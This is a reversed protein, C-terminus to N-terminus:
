SSACPIVAEVVTGGDVPSQVALSGGLTAVRDTLGRLGSGTGVQAGGVGDDTVRATVHGDQQDIRVRASSARSHKAVNTLAEAIVFYLTAEVPAPLRGCRMPEIIAPVPCRLVLSELAPGLGEDTLIVPHVGRALERLEQVALRLEMGIEDLLALNPTSAETTLQARASRLALAIMVLRQQAGDHLDREIERRAADGAELIRVRSEKVEDLQAKVCANLRDNEFSLRVAAAVSELLQPEDGLSSDYALSAMAEGDHTFIRTERGSEPDTTNLRRGEHDFFGMRTADWFGLQVSPDHLTRGILDQLHVGPTTRGLQMLLEGVASHALRARVLGVLFGLSLAGIGLPMLDWIGDHLRGPLSVAGDVIAGFAAATLPISALLVPALARRGPPTAQRWHRLVVVVLAAVFLSAILGNWRAITENLRLDGRILLLNGPSRRVAHQHPDWFAMEVLQGLFFWAYIAVVLAREPATRVRGPFAVYLHAIVALYFLGGFRAVTFPLPGPLWALDSVFWLFGVAVMLRAASSQADKTTALLGLIIFSLGVLVHVAVGLSSTAIGYSTGLPPAAFLPPVFALLSVAAGALLLGNRWKTM